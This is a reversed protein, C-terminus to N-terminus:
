PCKPGGIQTKWSNYCSCCGKNQGVYGPPVCQCWGCCHNCYFLCRKKHGKHSCRKICAAGCKSRPVPCSTSGILPKASIMSVMVILVLFIFVVKM